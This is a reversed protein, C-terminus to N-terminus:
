ANLAELAKQRERRYEAWRPDDSAAKHPDFTSRESSAGPTPKLPNPANSVAAKPKPHAPAASKEETAPPDQLKAELRAIFKVQQVPNMGQLKELDEVNTALHYMIEGAVESDQIAVLASSPVQYDSVAELAEDFDPHKERTSKLRANLEAQVKAAEAQEREERLAQRAEWRGVAKLYSAYDQFDAEQPEAEPNAPSAPAPSPESHAQLQRKLEENQRALEYKDKTLKDIRRQFGGDAKAPKQIPEGEGPTESVDATKSVAEPKEPEAAPASADEEPKPQEAPKAPASARSALAADDAAITESGFIVAM